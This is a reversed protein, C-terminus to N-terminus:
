IGRPVCNAPALPAVEVGLRELAGVWAGDSGTEPWSGGGLALIVADAAHTRAGGPTQFDLMWASERRLGTWRHQPAFKM